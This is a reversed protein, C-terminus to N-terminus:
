STPSLAAIEQTAKAVSEYSDSTKPPFVEFSLTVKDQSLIDIIKMAPNEGKPTSLALPRVAGAAASEISDMIACEM